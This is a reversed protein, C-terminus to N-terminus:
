CRNCHLRMNKSLLNGKEHNYNVYFQMYTIKDVKRQKYLKKWKKPLELAPRDLHKGKSKAVAIGEKQRQKIGVREKDAM